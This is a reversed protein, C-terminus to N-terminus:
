AAVKRDSITQQLILLPLAQAYCEHARQRCYAAKERVRKYAPTDAYGHTAKDEANREWEIAKREWEAAQAEYYSSSKMM